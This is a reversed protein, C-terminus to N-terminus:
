GPNHRHAVCGCGLRLQQAQHQPLRLRAHQIEAPAGILEFIHEHLHHLTGMDALLAKSIRWPRVQLRPRSLRSRESSPLQNPVRVQSVCKKIQTPIISPIRSAVNILMCRDPSAASIAPALSVPTISYQMKVPSNAATPTTIMMCSAMTPSFCVPVAAQTSELGAVRSAKTSVLHSPLMAPM